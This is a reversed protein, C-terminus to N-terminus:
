IDSTYSAPVMIPRLKVHKLLPGEFQTGDNEHGSWNNTMKLKAM